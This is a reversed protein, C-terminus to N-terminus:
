MTASQCAISDGQELDIIEDPGLVKRATRKAQDALETSGVLILTKKAGYVRRMEQILHVFVVTKGSGTPMSVAIRTSGEEFADLCAKLADEQYNHLEFPKDVSTTSCHRRLVADDCGIKLSPIPRRFSQDAPQLCSAKQFLQPPTAPSPLARSWSQARRFLSRTAIPRFM